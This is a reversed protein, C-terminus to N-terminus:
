TEKPESFLLNAIDCFQFLSRLEPFKEYRFCPVCCINERVVHAFMLEETYTSDEASESAISRSTYMQILLLLLM